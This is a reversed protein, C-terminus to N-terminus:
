PVHLTGENDVTKHVRTITLEPINALGRLNQLFTYSLVHVSSPPTRMITVAPKTSQCARGINHLQFPPSTTGLRILGLPEEDGVKPRQPTPQRIDGLATLTTRRAPTRMRSLSTRLHTSSHLTLLLTSRLGRHRASSHRSRPLTPRMGPHKPTTNCYSIFNTPSKRRTLFGGPKMAKINTGHTLRGPKTPSGTTM